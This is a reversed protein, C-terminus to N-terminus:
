TSPVVNIPGGKSTDRFLFNLTKKDEPEELNKQSLFYFRKSSSYQFNIKLTPTDLSKQVYNWQIARQKFFLAM